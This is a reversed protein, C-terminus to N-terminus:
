RRGPPPGADEHRGSGAGGAACPATHGESVPRSGGTHAGDAPPRRSPPGQHRQPERATLSSPQPGRGRPARRSRRAGGERWNCCCLSSSREMRACTLSSPRRPGAQRCGWALSPLSTPPGVTIWQLLLHHPRPSDRHGSSPGGGRCVCVCSACSPGLVPCNERSAAPPPTERERVVCRTEAAARAAGAHPSVHGLRSTTPFQPDVTM